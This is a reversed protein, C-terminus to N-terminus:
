ATHDARVWWDPQAEALDAAVSRAHEADRAVGFCTPGSGSLLVGKLGAGRLAGLVTRVGPLLRLVGPQLGNPWGPEEGAALNALAKEFRLRPTFGVLNAYAAAASVQGGPNALVLHLRPVEVAALREGRGRALAAPTTTTLFPVDSGLARAVAQVDVGAPLREALARLVAGADASGGGLGAAVPIRKALHLDIAVRPAGPDSARREGLYAEAARVALNDEAPGVADSGPLGPAVDVTLHVADRGSGAGEAVGIHLEDALGVKAMVTELEHYGDGRLAIVALGLNVKAHALYADAQHAAETM